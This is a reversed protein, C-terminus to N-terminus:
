SIEESSLQNTDECNEFITLIKSGTCQNPLIRYTSYLIHLTTSQFMTINFKAHRM